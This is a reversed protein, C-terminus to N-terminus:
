LLEIQHEQRSFTIYLQVFIIGFGIYIYVSPSAYCHYQVAMPSNQDITNYIIDILFSFINFELLLLLTTYSQTLIIGFSM